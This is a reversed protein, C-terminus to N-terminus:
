MKGYKNHFFAYFKRYKNISINKWKKKYKKEKTILFKNKFNFIQMNGNKFHFSKEM